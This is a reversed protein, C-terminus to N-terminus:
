ALDVTKILTAFPIDGTPHLWALFEVNGLQVLSLLADVDCACGWGIEKAASLVAEITNARVQPDRVWVEKGVLHAGAEFQPKILAVVWADTALLAKIPPL